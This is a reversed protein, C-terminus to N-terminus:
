VSNIFQHNVLHVLEDSKMCRALDETIKDASKIDSGALLRARANDCAHIYLAATADRAGAERADRVDEASLVTSLKALIQDNARGMISRLFHQQELVRITFNQCRVIKAEAIVPDAHAELGRICDTNSDLGGAKYTDVTVQAGLKILVAEARSHWANKLDDNDYSRSQLSNKDLCFRVKSVRRPTTQPLNEARRKKALQKLEELPTKSSSSSSTPQSRKRSKRLDEVSDKTCIM